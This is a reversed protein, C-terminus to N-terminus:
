TLYTAVSVKSMTMGAAVISVPDVSGYHAAAAGAINM